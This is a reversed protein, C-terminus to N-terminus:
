PEEEETKEPAKEAEAEAQRSKKRLITLALLVVGFSVVGIILVLYIRPFGGPKPEVVPVVDAFAPLCLLLGSFVACVLFRLKKM